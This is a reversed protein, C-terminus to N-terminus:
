RLVRASYGRARVYLSPYENANHSIQQASQVAQKFKTEAEPAGVSFRFQRYNFDVSVSLILLPGRGTLTVETGVGQVLDSPETLEELHATCSGVCRVYQDAPTEEVVVIRVMSSCDVRCPSDKSGDNTVPTQYGMNHGAEALTEEDGCDIAM